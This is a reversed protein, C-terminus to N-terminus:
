LSGLKELIKKRLQRRLRMLRSEVARVTMGGAVSLEEMTLGELYKSELLRRDDPELDNLCEELASQLRNEERGNQKLSEGHFLQAFKDLLRLYRQQKRGADRAASRALVKLWSWFTEESHFVRAYRVVRILTQQLAEQVEVENGRSVVLLFQHLRDFYLEHFKRFADEERAALRRTLDTTANLVATHTSNGEVPKGRSLPLTLVINSAPTAMLNHLRNQLPLLNKPAPLLDM